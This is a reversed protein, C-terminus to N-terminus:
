KKKSARKPKPKDAAPRKAPEEAPAPEDAAPESATEPEEAPQTAFENDKLADLAVVSVDELKKPTFEAAKARDYDELKMIGNRVFDAAVTRAINREKALLCVADNEEPSWLSTPTKARGQSYLRPIDVM